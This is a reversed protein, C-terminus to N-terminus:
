ATVEDKLFLHGFYKQMSAFTLPVESNYRLIGALKADPIINRKDNPSQLEHSKIYECMAKNVENRSKLEAPNWGAFNAMEASVRMPKSFGSQSNKAGETAPKKQLKKTKAGLKVLEKFYKKVLKDAAGFKDNDLDESLSELLKDIGEGVEKCLKQKGTKKSTKEEEETSEPGAEPVPVVATKEVKVAKARPKKVPPAPEASEGVVPEETKKAREKKVPAVPAPTAPVNVPDAVPAKEKKPARPKKVSTQTSM